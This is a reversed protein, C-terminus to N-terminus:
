LKKLKERLVEKHRGNSWDLLVVGLNRFYAAFDFGRPREVFYPFILYNPVQRKRTDCFRAGARWVHEMHTHPRPKKPKRLEFNELKIEGILRLDSTASDEIVTDPRWL